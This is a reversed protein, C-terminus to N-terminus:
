KQCHIFSTHLWFYHETKTLLTTINIDMEQDHLAPDGRSPPTPKKQFPILLNFYVFIVNIISSDRIAAYIHNPRSDIKILLISLNLVNLVLTQLM